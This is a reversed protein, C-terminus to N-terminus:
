ASIGLDKQLEQLREELRIKEAGLRWRGSPELALDVYIKRLSKKVETLEAYTQDYWIDGWLAGKQIALMFDMMGKDAQFSKLLDSSLGSKELLRTSRLSEKAETLNKYQGSIVALIGDWHLTAEEESSLSLNNHQQSSM